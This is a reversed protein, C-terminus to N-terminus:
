KSRRRVLLGLGGLALLAMTAPEPVFDIYQFHTTANSSSQSGAKLGVYVDGIGAWTRPRSADFGTWTGPTDGTSQSWYGYFNDGVRVLKFWVPDANPPWTWTDTTPPDGDAGIWGWNMNFDPKLCLYGSKPSTSSSSDSFLLGSRSHAAPAGEFHVQAILTFDGTFQQYAWYGNQDYGGAATVSYDYGETNEVYSGSTGGITNGATPVFPGAQAQPSAAIVGIAVVVAFVFLSKIRMIQEGKK